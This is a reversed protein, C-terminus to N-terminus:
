SPYNVSQFYTSLLQFPTAHISEVLYALHHHSIIVWDGAFIMKEMHM